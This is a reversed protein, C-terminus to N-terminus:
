RDIGEGTTEWAEECGWLEVSRRGEGDVTFNQEPTLLQYWAAGLCRRYWDPNLQIFLKHISVYATWGTM